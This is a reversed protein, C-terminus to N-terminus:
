KVVNIEKFWSYMATDIYCPYDEVQEYSANEYVPGSNTIGFYGFWNSFCWGYGKESIASTIDLIMARYADDTYLSRPLLTDELSRLEIGFGALMFGVGYQEALAMVENCSAAKNYRRLALLKEADNDQYPWTFSDIVSTSKQGNIM